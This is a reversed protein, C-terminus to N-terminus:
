PPRLFAEIRPRISKFAEEGEFESVSTFIVFVLESDVVNVYLSNSIGNGGATAIARQGSRTPRIMMDRYKKTAEPSLVRGALIADFWRYLEEVTAIMGGNARLNWSPGDEMWPHDLSTGWRKGGRYGVALEENKWNPIKYGIRSVGAPKLVEHYVYREYPIGSTKEIIAGLLSFGSNSYESKEGPKFLLKAAMIKAVIEDRGMPEYDDGFMDPFGAKHDMVQQLTIDAKDPPAEPFFRSLKDDLKLKGASELKVLAARTMPKVISGICMGTGTTLKRGSERDAYGYAKHLVITGKHSLLVVGYLGKADLSSLFGDVEKGLQEPTAPRESPWDYTEQSYAQSSLFTLSAVVVASQLNRMSM